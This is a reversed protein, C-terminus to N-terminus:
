PRACRDEKLPEPLRTINIAIRRAEDNTVDSGSGAVAAIV